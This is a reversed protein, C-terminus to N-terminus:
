PFISSKQCIKIFSTCAYTVKGSKWSLEILFLDSKPRLIIFYTDLELFCLHTLFHSLSFLFPLFLTKIRLQSSSIKKYEACCGWVPKAMALPLLEPALRRSDMSRPDEAKEGDRESCYLFLAAAPVAPHGVEYPAKPVPLDKKERLTQCNTAHRPKHTLPKLTQHLSLSIGVSAPTPKNIWDITMAM